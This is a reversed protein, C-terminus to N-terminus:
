RRASRGARWRWARWRAALWHWPRLLAAFFARDVGEFYTTPVGLVRQPEEGGPRRPGVPMGLLRQPAPGAGPAQAPSPDGPRARHAVGLLRQPAPEAHEDAGHGRAPTGKSM